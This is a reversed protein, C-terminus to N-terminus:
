CRCCLQSARAKRAKAPLKAASSVGIDSCSSESRWAAIVSSVVAGGPATRMATRASRSPKSSSRGSPWGAVAAAAPRRRAVGDVLDLCCSRRLLGVFEGLPLAQTLLYSRDPLGTADSQPRQGAFKAQRCRRHLARQLFPSWRGQPQLLLQRVPQRRRHDSGHRFFRKARVSCSVNGGGAIADILERCASRSDAVPQLQSSCGIPPNGDHNRRISHSRQPLTCITLSVCAARPRSAM